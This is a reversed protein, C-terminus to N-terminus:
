TALVVMFVILVLLAVGVAAALWVMREEVEIRPKQM